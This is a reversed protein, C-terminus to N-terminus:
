RVSQRVAPLQALAAMAVIAAIAGFAASAIVRLSTPAVKRARTGVDIATLVVRDNPPVGASAQEADGYSVLAATAAAALRQAMKRSGTRATPYVLLSQTPTSATLASAVRGRSLHLKRAVPLVIQDSDILAAYRSRLQDLKIIVGTGRSVSLQPQSFDVIGSAEYVPPRTAALAAGVGAFLLVLSSAAAV